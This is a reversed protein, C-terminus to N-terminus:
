HTKISHNSPIACHCAKSTTSLQSLQSPRERFFSAGPPSLPDASLPFAPALEDRGGLTAPSHTLSLLPGPSTGTHAPHGRPPLTHGPSSSGTAEEQCMSPICPAGCVVGSLSLPLSLALPFSFLFPSLSSLIVFM